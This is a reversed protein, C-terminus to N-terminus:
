RLSPPAGHALMRVADVPVSQIRRKVGVFRQFRVQDHFRLQEAILLLGIRRRVPEGPGRLNFLAETRTTRVQPQSFFAPDMKEAGGAAPCARTIEMRGNAQALLQQGLDAQRRAQPLADLFERVGNALPARM